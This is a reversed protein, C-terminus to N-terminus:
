KCPVVRPLKGRLKSNLTGTEAFMREMEALVGKQPFNIVGPGCVPHISIIDGREYTVGSPTVCTPLSCGWIRFTTRENPDLGEGVRYADYEMIFMGNDRREKLRKRRVFQMIGKVDEPELDWVSTIRFARAREQLFRFFLAIGHKQIPDYTQDRIQNPLSSLFAPLDAIDNEGVLEIEREPAVRAARKQEIAVLEQITPVRGGDFLESELRAPSDSRYAARFVDPDIYGNLLDIATSYPFSGMFGGNDQERIARAAEPADSHAFSHSMGQSRLKLRRPLDEHGAIKGLTVELPGEGQSEVSKGSRKKLLSEIAAEKADDLSLNHPPRRYKLIETRILDTPRSHGFVAQSVEIVASHFQPGNGVIPKIPNQAFELIDLGTRDGSSIQYSTGARVYVYSGESLPYQQNNVFIRGTGGRVYIISDKDAIRMEDALRAGMRTHIMRLGEEFDDHADVLTKRVVRKLNNSIRTPLSKVIPLDKAIPVSGDFVYEVEELDDKAFLYIIEIPDDPDSVTYHPVGRPLYVYDGPKLDIWNDEEPPGM